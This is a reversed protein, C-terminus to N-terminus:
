HPGLGKASMACNWLEVEGSLNPLNRRVHCHGVQSVHKWLSCHKDMNSMRDAPAKICINNGASYKVLAQVKLVKRGILMYLAPLPEARCQCDVCQVVDTNGSFM